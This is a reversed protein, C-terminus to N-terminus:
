GEVKERRKYDRYCQLLLLFYNAGDICTDEFSEDEVEFSGKQLFQGVRSYKDGLRIWIGTHAPIGGIECLRFNSFRDEKDAYDSAKKNRIELMKDLLKKFENGEEDMVIEGKVHV